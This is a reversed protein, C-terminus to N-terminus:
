FGMLGHLSGGLSGRVHQEKYFQVSLSDGQKQELSSSIWMGFRGALGVGAGDSQEQGEM